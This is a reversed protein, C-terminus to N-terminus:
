ISLGAHPVAEQLRLKGLQLILGLLEVEAGPNNQPHRSSSTHPPSLMPAPGLGEM